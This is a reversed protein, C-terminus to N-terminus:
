CWHTSLQLEYSSCARVFRVGPILSLRSVDGVRDLPNSQLTQCFLLRLLRISYRGLHLRLSTETYERALDGLFPQITTLNQLLSKVKLHSSHPGASNSGHSSSSISSGEMQSLLQLLKTNEYYHKGGQIAEWCLLGLAWVDCKFFDIESWNIEDDRSIEPANYRSRDTAFRAESSPLSRFTRKPAM